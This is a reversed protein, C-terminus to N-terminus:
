TTMHKQLRVLQTISLTVLGWLLLKLSKSLCQSLIMLYKSTKEMSAVSYNSWRCLFHVDVKTILIGEIKLTPNLNSKVMFIKNLLSQTRKAPLYAAETPILVSNAATFVNILSYGLTPPCDILIFDYEQRIDQVFRKIVDPEQFIGSLEIDIMTTDCPILDINEKHHLVATKWDNENNHIVDVLCDTITKKSDEEEYGFVATLNGDQPDTDICLTKYGGRALAVGLNQTTTTKEVGGKQNAIAIIRAM